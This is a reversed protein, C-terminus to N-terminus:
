KRAVCARLSRGAANAETRTANDDESGSRGYTERFSVAPQKRVGVHIPVAAAAAAAKTTVNALPWFEM